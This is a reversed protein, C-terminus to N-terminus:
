SANAKWGAATFRVLRRTLEEASAAKVRGESLLSINDGIRMSHAMAGVTFTMRWVIEESPLGPVAREFAAIFRDRVEEMQVPIVKGFFYEPEALLRGILKMFIGCSGPTAGLRLTPGVFAEIVEELSPRRRGARREVEELLRLREENLPRFHRAIVANVLADKSGFHYHVAALNVDAERIISRLSTAGVGQAAFLLEAADLIRQKTEGASENM